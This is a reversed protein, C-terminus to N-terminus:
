RLAEIIGKTWKNFDFGNRRYTVGMRLIVLELSPIVTLRQGHFGNAFFADRPVDPMEGGKNLWFHGGYHGESNPAERKTFELWDHSLIENGDWTGDNLYLQGFKAWDRATGYTYSSTVFHGGADTEMFMSDMGLKGFLEKYPFEWYEELSDFQQAMLYSLINSDGSSYCFYGGAPYKRKRRLAYRAMHESDFLMTNVTEVGGYDEKWDLGSNMQLLHRWTIDKKDSHKWAKMPVPDRLDLKGQRHLIGVLASLISKTMSWGLLPTDVNIGEAYQEGIIKGKHMVVVARTNKPSFMNGEKFAAAIADKMKINEAEVPMASHSTGNFQKELPVIKADKLKDYEPLHKRPIAHHLMAGLGERYVATKRSHGLVSSSVTKNEMDITFDALNVPFFGLDEKLIKEIPIKSIFLQSCLYKAAFGSIIPIRPRLLKRLGWYGLVIGASILLPQQVRKDSLQQLLKKM